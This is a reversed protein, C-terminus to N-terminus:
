KASFHVVNDIDVKDYRVKTIKGRATDLPEREFLPQRGSSLSDDSSPLSDTFLETSDRDIADTDLVVNDSATSDAESAHTAGGKRPHSVESQSYAFGVIIIAVIYLLLRKM